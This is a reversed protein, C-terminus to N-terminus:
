TLAGTLGHATVHGATPAPEGRETAEVDPPLTLRGLLKGSAVLDLGTRKAYEELRLLKLSNGVFVPTIACAILVIM